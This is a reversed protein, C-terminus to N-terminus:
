LGDKEKCETAWFAEYEEGRQFAMLQKIKDRYELIETNLQDLRAKSARLMKLEGASITVPEDNESGSLPSLPTVEPILQDLYLIAEPTSQAVSPERQEGETKEMKQGM